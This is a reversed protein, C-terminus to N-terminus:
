KKLSRRIVDDIASSNPRGSDLNNYRDGSVSGSRMLWDGLRKGLDRMGGAHSALLPGFISPSMGATKAALGGLFLDRYHPNERLWDVMDRQIGTSMRSAELNTKASELEVKAARAAIASHVGRSVSAGLDPMEAVPSSPVSGPNGGMALMPNLGAAKMDAMTRQYRQSYMKEQWHRAKGAQSASFLGSIVSGGIDGAASIAAAGLGSM